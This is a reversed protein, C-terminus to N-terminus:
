SCLQVGLDTIKYSFEYDRVTPCLQSPMTDVKNGWDPVIFQAEHRKFLKVFEFLIHVTLPNSSHSNPDSISTSCRSIESVCKCSFIIQM